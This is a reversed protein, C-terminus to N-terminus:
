PRAWPLNGSKRARKTSQVYKSADPGAFARYEWGGEMLPILAFLIPRADTADRIGRALRERVAGRPPRLDGPVWSSVRLHYFFTGTM